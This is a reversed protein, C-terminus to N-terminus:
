SCTVKITGHRAKGSRVADCGGESSEAHGAVGHDM